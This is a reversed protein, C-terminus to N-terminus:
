FLFEVVKSANLRVRVRGFCDGMWGGGAAFFCVLWRVKFFVPLTVPSLSRIVDHRAAKTAARIVPRYWDGAQALIAGADAARGVWAKLVPVLFESKSAAATSWEECLARFAFDSIQPGYEAGADPPLAAVGVLAKIAPVLCTFGIDPTRSAAAVLSDFFFKRAVATSPAEAGQNRRQYLDGLIAGVVTRYRSQRLLPCCMVEEVIVFILRLCETFTLHHNLDADTECREWLPERQVLVGIWEMQRMLGDMVPPIARLFEDASMSAVLSQQVTTM